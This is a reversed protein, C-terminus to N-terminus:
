EEAVQEQADDKPGAQANVALQRLSDAGALRELDFVRDFVAAPQWDEPQLQIAVQPLAPEAAEARSGYVAQGSPFFLLQLSIIECRSSSFIKKTQGAASRIERKPDATM